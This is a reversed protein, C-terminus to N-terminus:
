GARAERGASALPDGPDGAWDEDLERRRIYRHISSYPWDSARRVYGHRVPNAHVYDVHRRLM